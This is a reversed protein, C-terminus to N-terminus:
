LYQRHYRDLLGNLTKDVVDHKQPNRLKSLLKSLWKATIKVVLHKHQHYMEKMWDLDGDKRLNEDEDRTIIFGIRGYTDGGYSLMQRYEDGSINQYNKVEFVVQRTGYDERIRSWAATKGLNTGVIDRRQKAQKNPHLEVNTLAGAFVIKVADLCWEEFEYFGDRGPIIENLASILQGLRKARQEPTISSVRIDYEDYIVEAEDSDLANRTLNLAMWYCPHILLGANDEFEKTPSAGDHCFVYNGHSSELAGLFGVSYLNKIIDIPNKLIELDQQVVEPYVSDDRINSLIEEAGAVTFEPPGGSFKNIIEPLSPFIATYEKRLDDLRGESIEKATFEVDSGIM